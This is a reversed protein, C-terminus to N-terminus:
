EESTVLVLIILKGESKEFTQMISLAENQKRSYDNFKFKQVKFGGGLRKNLQIVICPDIYEAYVCRGSQTIFYNLRAIEQCV